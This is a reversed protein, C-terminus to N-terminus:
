LAADVLRLVEVVQPRVVDAEDDIAGRHDRCRGPGFQGGGGVRRLIHLELHGPTDPRHGGWRQCNRSM